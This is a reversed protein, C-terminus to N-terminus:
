LELFYLFNCAYSIDRLNKEQVGFSLCLGSGSSRGEPIARVLSLKTEQSLGLDGTQLDSMIKNTMGKVEGLSKLSQLVM